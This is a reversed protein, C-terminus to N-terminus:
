SQKRGRVCRDRPVIEQPTGEFYCPQAGPDFKGSKDHGRIKIRDPCDLHHPNEIGIPRPHVVVVAPHRGIEYHLCEPTLVDCNVANTTLGAAEAIISSRISAVVGILM